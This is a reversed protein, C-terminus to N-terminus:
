HVLTAAIKGAISGPNVNFRIDTRLSDFLDLAIILRPSDPSNLSLAEIFRHYCSEIFPELSSKDAKELGVCFELLKLSEAATFAQFFDEVLALHPGEERPSSEEAPTVLLHACRSRVTPLLASPNEALLLFTVFPPPEELAKLFANQASPNMSDAEEVIYVKHGSENPLIHLSGTIERIQSVLIERKTGAEGPSTVLIDPHIGKIAKICPACLHCPRERDVLARCLLFQAMTRALTRCSEAKPGSIIYAHALPEKLQPHLLRANGSLGITDMDLSTYRIKNSIELTIPISVM